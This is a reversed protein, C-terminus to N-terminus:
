GNLNTLFTGSVCTGRVLKLLYLALFGLNQSKKKEHLASPEKLSESEPLQSHLRPGQM